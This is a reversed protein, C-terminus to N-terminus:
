ECSPSRRTAVKTAILKADTSGIAATLTRYQMVLMGARRAKIATKVTANVSQRPVSVLALDTSTKAAVVAYTATDFDRM